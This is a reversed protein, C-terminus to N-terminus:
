ISVLHFLNKNQDPMRVAFAQRRFKSNIIRAAHFFGSVLNAQRVETLKRKIWDQMLPVFLHLRKLRIEQFKLLVYSPRVMEHNKVWAPPWGDGREEVTHKVFQPKPSHRQLQM